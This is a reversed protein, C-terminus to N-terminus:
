SCSTAPLVSDFEVCKMQLCSKRFYKRYARIVDNFIEFNSKEVVTLLILACNAGTFLPSFEADILNWCSKRFYKRYARIVDNFNWLKIEVSSYAINIRLKRWYISSYISSIDYHLLKKSLVEPIRSHNWQFKWLKTESSSNVTNIRLKRWHFSSTIKCTDPQLLKKSFVEPIRSHRWQFKWLKIEISSYAINIRLKNWHTSSKIRCSRLFFIFTDTYVDPYLAEQTVM